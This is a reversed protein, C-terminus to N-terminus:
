TLSWDLCKGLLLLIVPVIGTKCLFVSHIPSYPLVGSILFTLKDTIVYSTFISKYTKIDAGSRMNKRNYSNSLVTSKELCPWSNLM